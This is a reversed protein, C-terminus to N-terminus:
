NKNENEDEGSLLPPAVDKEIRGIFFTM